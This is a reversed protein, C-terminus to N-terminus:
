TILGVQFPSSAGWPDRQDFSFLTTPELRLTKAREGETQTLEWWTRECDLFRCPHYFLFDLTPSHNKDKEGPSQSECVESIDLAPSPPCIFYILLHNCYVWFLLTWWKVMETFACHQQTWLTILRFTAGTTGQSLTNTQTTVSWDCTDWKYGTQGGDSCFIWRTSHHKCFFLFAM